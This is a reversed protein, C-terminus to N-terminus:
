NGLQIFTHKDKEEV